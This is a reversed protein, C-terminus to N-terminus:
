IEEQDVAWSHPSAFPQPQQNTLVWTLASQIKSAFQEARSRSWIFDALNFEKEASSSLNFSGSFTWGRGDPYLLAAIKSHLIEQGVSSTGVGWQDAALGATAAGVAAKDNASSTCSADFLYRNAPNVKGALNMAAAINEDTYSYQSSFLTAGNAHGDNIQALIAATIQAGNDPAWITEWGTVDTWAINTTM